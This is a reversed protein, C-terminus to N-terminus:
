PPSPRWVVGGQELSDDFGVLGVDSSPGSSAPVALVVIVLFVLSPSSRFLSRDQPRHLARPVDSGADGFVGGSSADDVKDGSCDVGM